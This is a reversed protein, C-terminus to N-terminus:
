ESTARLMVSIMHLVITDEKFFIDTVNWTAELGKASIILQCRFDTDSKISSYQLDIGCPKRLLIQFYGVTSGVFMASHTTGLVCLCM